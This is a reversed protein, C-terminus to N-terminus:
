RCAASLKFSLIMNRLAILAASMPAATPDTNAPAATDAWGPLVVAALMTATVAGLAAAVLANRLTNSFPM